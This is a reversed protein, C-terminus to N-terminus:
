AMKPTKGSSDHPPASHEGLISYEHAKRWEKDNMRDIAQEYTNVPKKGWNLFEVDLWVRNVGNAEQWLYWCGTAPSEELKKGEWDGKRGTRNAHRLLVVAGLAALLLIARSFHIVSRESTAHASLFGAVAQMHLFSPPNRLVLAIFYVMETLAGAILFWCLLWEAHFIIHCAPSRRVTTRYFIIQPHHDKKWVDFLQFWLFQAHVRDCKLEKELYRRPYQAQFIEARRSNGASLADHSYAM